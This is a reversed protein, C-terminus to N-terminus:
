EEDVDEAVPEGGWGEPFSRRLVRIGLERYLASFHQRIFVQNKAVEMSMLLSAEVDPITEREERSLSEKLDAGKLETMLKAAQRLHWYAIAEDQEFGRTRQLDEIEGRVQDNMWEHHEM